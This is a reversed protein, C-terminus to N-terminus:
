EVDPDLGASARREVVMRAIRGDSLVGVLSASCCRALACPM